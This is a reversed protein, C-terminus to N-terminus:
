GEGCSQKTCLRCSFGYFLAVSLNAIGKALKTQDRDIACVYGPLKFITDALPLQGADTYIKMTLKIDSHRMLEMVVRPAAGIQEARISNDGDEDNEDRDRSERWVEVAREDHRFQNFLSVRDGVEGRDASM